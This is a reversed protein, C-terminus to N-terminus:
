WGEDDDYFDRHEQIDCSDVGDLNRLRNYVPEIHEACDTLDFRVIIETQTAEITGPFRKLDDLRIDSTKMLM